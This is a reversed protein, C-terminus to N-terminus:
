NNQSSGAIISGIIIGAIVGELDHHHGRRPPQTPRRYRPPPNFRPRPPRHMTHHPPRHPAAETDVPLMISGLGTALVTSLCTISIFKKLNLM